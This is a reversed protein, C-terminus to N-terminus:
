VNYYMDILDSLELLDTYQFYRVQMSASIASKIGSMFAEATRMHAEEGCSESGSDLVPVGGVHGGNSCSSGSNSRKDPNGPTSNQSSRSGRRLKRYEEKLKTTTQLQFYKTRFM